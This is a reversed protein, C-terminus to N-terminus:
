FAVGIDRGDSDDSMAIPVLSIIVILMNGLLNLWLGMGASVSVGLIDSLFPQVQMFIWTPLVAGSLGLVILILWPLRWWERNPRWFGSILAVLIVFGILVVRLISQERVPGIIDEVAPFSLLSVMVGLARITWAHWDFSEKIPWTWTWFALMLGLIVPPLYFLDRRPGLGLFKFWEGMEVGLFTLGVGPGRLWVSLYGVFVATVGLILLLQSYRRM